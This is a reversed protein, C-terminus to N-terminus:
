LFSTIVGSPTSGAFWLGRELWSVAFNELKEGEFADRQDIAVSQVRPTLLIKDTWIVENKTVEHEAVISM